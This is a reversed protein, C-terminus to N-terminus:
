SREPLPGIEEQRNEKLAEFIKESVQDVLRPSMSAIEVRTKGPTEGAFFVGVETTDVHGKFKMATLYEKEKGKLYVQADMDKIVKEVGSFCADRSLAFTEAKGDKRSRELHKISSGWVKKGAEHLSACGELLFFGSIWLILVGNRVSLM